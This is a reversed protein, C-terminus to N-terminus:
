VSHPKIRKKPLGDIQLVNSYRTTEFRVIMGDIYQMKFDGISMLYYTGDSAIDEYNPVCDELSEVSHRSFIDSVADYVLIIM